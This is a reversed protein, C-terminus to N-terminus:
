SGALLFSPWVALLGIVRCRTVRVGLASLRYGIASRQDSRPCAGLPARGRVPTNRHALWPRASTRAMRGLVASTSATPGTPAVVGMLPPKPAAHQLHRRRAAPTRSAANDQRARRHCPLASAPAASM